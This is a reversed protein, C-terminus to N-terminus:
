HNLAYIVARILIYLITLPFICFLPRIDALRYGTSTYASGYTNRVPIYRKAILRYLGYIGFASIVGWAAGCLIDLPFHVGLYMRSYSSLCAYLILLASAWRNRLLLTFFVAVGFTNSAHSSIFGYLGCRYDDVLDIAVALDPTHSPRLRQFTPKCLGSAFQDCVTVLLTIMIILLLAGKWWNNRWIAYLLCAFLPVWTATKTITMMVGDLFLSDSGNLLLLLAKDWQILQDLM